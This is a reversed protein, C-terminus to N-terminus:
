RCGAAPPSGPRVLSRGSSLLRPTALGEGSSAGSPRPPFASRCEEDWWSRRGPGGAGVAVPADGSPRDPSEVPEAMSSIAGRPEARYALLDDSSSLRGRGRLGSPGTRSWYPEGDGVVVRPGSSRRRAPRGAVRRGNVGETPAAGSGVTVRTTESASPARRGAGPAGRDRAGSRGLGVAGPDHDGGIPGWRDPRVSRRHGGRDEDGRTRM